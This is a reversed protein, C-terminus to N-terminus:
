GGTASTLETQQVSFVCQFSVNGNITHLTRVPVNGEGGANWQM